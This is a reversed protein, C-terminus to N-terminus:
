FLENFLDVKSEIHTIFVVPIKNSTEKIIENAGVKGFAGCLEIEDAYGILSKSIEKVEQLNKVGISKRYVKSAFVGMILYVFKMKRM